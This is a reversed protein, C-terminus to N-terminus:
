WSGLNIGANNQHYPYIINFCMFYCMIILEHSKNKQLPWIAGLPYGPDSHRVLPQTTPEAM